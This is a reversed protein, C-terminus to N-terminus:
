AYQEDVWPFGNPDDKIRQWLTDDDHGRIQELFPFDTPEISVCAIPRVEVLSAWHALEFKHEGMENMPDKVFTDKPLVYVWGNKWSNMDRVWKSQSFFYYHESLNDGEIFRCCSNHISSNSPRDVVAFFMPWIGDSAAYVAKQAGFENVDNSQRPEFLEITPDQSGHLVVPMTDAIHCLFQWKPVPTETIIGPKTLMEAIEASMEPSITFPPRTLLYSRVDKQVVM